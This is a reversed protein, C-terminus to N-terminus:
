SAMGAEMYIFGMYTSYGLFVYFYSFNLLFFFFNFIGKDLRELHRGMFSYSIRPMMIISAIVSILIRIVASIAGLFCDFFFNFYLFVNFVRFNDIALIKTDRRIFIFRSTVFNVLQKFFLACIVPVLKLLIKYFIEDGITLRLIIIIIGIILLCIYQIFFGWILYGTLYGGFHFSSSAISSNKLKKIPPLYLCKGKYIQILHKKADRIGFLLQIVCIILAVFYPALLVARFSPLFEPAFKIVTKPIPLPYKLDPICFDDGFYCLVDAFTLNKLNDFDIFSLNKTVLLIILIINFLFLLFIHYLALFAVIHTNIFRSTFRFTDKWDYIYKKFLSKLRNKIKDSKNALMPSENAHSFSERYETNNFKQFIRTFVQINRRFENHNGNEHKNHLLEFVYLADSHSYLVEDDDDNNTCKFCCLRDKTKRKLRNLLMIIARYTLNITIYSSLVITPVVSLIKYGIWYFIVRRASEFDYGYYTISDCKGQQYVTDALDLWSYLAALIYITCSKSRFAILIPYYRIGIFIVEFIRMLLKFLDTPDTGDPLTIKYSNIPKTILGQIIRFVEYAIRGYVFATYTRDTKKWLSVISPLGLNKWSCRNICFSRRKYIITFIIILLFAVPTTVIDIGGIDVAFCVIGSYLIYTNKIKLFSDYVDYQLIGIVALLAISVFIGLVAVIIGEYKGFLHLNDSQNSFIKNKERLM